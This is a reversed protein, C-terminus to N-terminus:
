RPDRRAENLGRRWEGQVRELDRDVAEPGPRNQRELKAGQRFYEYADRENQALRTLGLFYFYRADQNFQEIASRFSREADAWCGKNFQSRGNFYFKEAAMPDQLVLTEPRKLFPHKEIINLLRKAQQANLQGNKALGEVYSKLAQTYLGKIVLADAIVDPPLGEPKALIADALKQAEEQRPDLQRDDQFMTLMLVIFARRVAPDAAAFEEAFTKPKAKSTKAEDPKRGAQRPQSLVRALAVRYRAGIGDQDKHAALAARYSTAAGDLDGTEEAIRGLLYHGEASGARAAADADARAKRLAKEDKANRATIDAKDLYVQGRLALLRTENPLLQLAHDLLALAEDDRGRDRLAEAKTRFTAAPDSVEKLATQATVRWVNDGLDPLAKELTTKAADFKEQNRLALGLVTEARGKTAADANRDALVRNADKTAALATDPTTNAELLPRWYALLEQPTWREKLQSKADTVEASLKRMEGKPDVMKAIRLAMKLGDTIADAKANPKLYEADVLEKVVGSLAASLDTNTKKLGENEQSAKVLKDKAETLDKDVKELKKKTEEALAAADKLDKTKTEVDKKLDDIKMADAKSAEELKTIKEVADKAKEAAALAKGADDYGGKKLLDKMTWYAKLEDCTRLFIEEDPDSTPNQAKNPNLKRRLDHNKKAEALAKLADDYKQGKALKVAKWFDFGAEEPGADAMPQPDALLVVAMLLAEGRLAPLRTNADPAKVEHTELRDLAAEFMRAEPKGKFRTAGETYTKKADDRKGTAEEIRGKDLRAQANNEDINIAETLDELADKVAKDDAKMEKASRRYILWRFRGRAARQQSDSKVIEEFGGGQVIKDLDGTAVLGRKDDFTQAKEKPTPTTGPDTDKRPGGPNSPGSAVQKWSAPPEIGYMWLGLATGSGIVLGLLTGVLVGGRSRGAVPGRDRGALHEPAEEEAEEAPEEVAEEGFTDADEVPAEEIVEEGEEPEDFAAAEEALLKGRRGPHATGEMPALDLGVEEDETPEEFEGMPALMTAHGEVVEGSGEGSSDDVEEGEMVDEAEALGFAELGEAGTPEELAHFEDSADKLPPASKPETDGLLGALDVSSKAAQAAIEESTTPRGPRPPPPAGLGSDPGAAPVVPVSDGSPPPALFDVADDDDAAAGVPEAPVGSPAASTGSLDISEAPGGLDVESLRRKRPVPPPLKGEGSAQATKFAELEALSGGELFEDQEQAAAPSLPPLGPEPVVPEDIDEVLPAGIEGSPMMEPDMIEEDDEEAVTPELIDEEDHPAGVMNGEVMVEEGVEDAVDEVLEGSVVSSSPVKGAEIPGSTSSPMPVAEFAGSELAMLGSGELGMEPATLQPRIADGGLDVASSHISDDADPPMEGLPVESESTSRKHEGSGQLDVGSEVAEAILDRVSRESASGEEGALRPDTSPEKQALEEVLLDIGSNTVPDHGSPGEPLASASSPTLGAEAMEAQLAALDMGSSEADASRAPKGGLEISSEGTSPALHISSDGTLVPVEEEGSHTPSEQAPPQVASADQAMANARVDFDSPADVQLPGSGSKSDVLAAWDVNSHGSTSLPASDAGLPPVVGPLDLDVSSDSFRSKASGEPPSAANQPQQANPDHAPKTEPAGQQPQEPDPRPEDHPSM